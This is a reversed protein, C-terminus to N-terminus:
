KNNQIKYPGFILFADTTIIYINVLSSKRGSLRPTNSTAKSKVWWPGISSSRQLNNAWTKQIAFGTPRLKWPWWLHSGSLFRQSIHYSILLHSVASPLFGAGGPIYSVMCIIPYKGYWSTIALNRGHVTDYSIQYPRKWFYHYGWIM